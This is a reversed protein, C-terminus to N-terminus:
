ARRRPVRRDGAIASRGDGPLGLTARVAQRATDALESRSSAETVPLQPLLHVQVVTRPQCLIRWAHLMFWEGGVFAAVPPGGDPGREHEIAVPQVPTGTDVAAAFLRPHFHRVETGTTTTAEPFLVVRQRAALAQAMDRLIQSSRHAGRHIFLTGNRRALWGILPWRAVEAKSLFRLDLVAGLVPIDLWSVHNAVVLAPGDPARGHVRIEVGALAMARRYWRRRIEAMRTEGAPGFGYRLTLWLGYFLYAIIRLLRYGGRLKSSM